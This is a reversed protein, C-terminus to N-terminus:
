YTGNTHIELNLSVEHTKYVNTLNCGSYYLGYGGLLRCNDYEANSVELTINSNGGSNLYSSFDLVPNTQADKCISSEYAGFAYVNTPSEAKVVVTKTYNLAKVRVRVCGVAATYGTGQVALQPNLSLSVRLISETRVRGGYTAKPKNGQSGTLTADWSAPPLLGRAEEEGGDLLDGLESEDYYDNNGASSNGGASDVPVETYATGGCASLSLALLAPLLGTKMGNLITLKKKM